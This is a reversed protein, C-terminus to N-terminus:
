LAGLVPGGLIAEAEHWLRAGLAADTSSPVPTALVPEGAAGHRPGIYANRPLTPAAVAAVAPRAASDKGQVLRSVLPALAPALLRVPLPREHLPPREPTLADIAGGPHAVVSRIRSGAELLRRDLEFGLIEAAHKSMAYAVRPRYSKQSLWDDPDFPIRRTLMSGTSVIRAAPAEELAPLASRLLEVHALVNVGVTSEVGFAGTAAIRPATIIGANLVIGDLTGLRRLADGASLISERDSLDLPLHRHRGPDPLLGIAALARAESRAAVVVRAGLRALGEAVFFGIGGAAGTVVVTRGDLRAIEVATERRRGLLPATTESPSLNGEIRSAELYM